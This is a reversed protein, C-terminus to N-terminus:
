LHDVDVSAGSQCQVVNYQSPSLSSQSCSASQIWKFLQLMLYCRMNFQSPLFSSSQEAIIIPSKLSSMSFVSIGDM